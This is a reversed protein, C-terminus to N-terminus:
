KHIILDIPDIDMGIALKFINIRLVNNKGSLIKNMVAEDIYCEKAFEEVTKNSNKIYNKILDFDINEKKIIRAIKKDEMNYEKQLWITTSIICLRKATILHNVVMQDIIKM